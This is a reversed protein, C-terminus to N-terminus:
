RWTAEIRPKAVLQRNEGDEWIVTGDATRRLFKFPVDTGRPVTIKTAWYAGERTMAPAKDPNWSGLAALEGCVLLQDGDDVHVGTLVITTEIHPTAAVEYIGPALHPTPETNLPAIGGVLADLRADVNALRDGVKALAARFAAVQAPDFDDEDPLGARELAAELISVSSYHDYRLRLAALLDSKALKM